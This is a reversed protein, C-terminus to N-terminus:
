SMNTLQRQFDRCSIPEIEPKDSCAWRPEEKPLPDESVVWSSAGEKM